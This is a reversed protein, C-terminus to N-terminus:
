ISELKKNNIKYNFDSISKYENQHTIIFMTTKSKIKKLLKLIKIIGAQDVASTIEDLILLEPNMLIERIICIRQKEGNSLNSSSEDIMLDLNINKDEFITDLDFLKIYKVLIKDSLKNNRLKLNDRLSINFVTNDQSVYGIKSRYFNLDYNSIEINNITISGSESEYLRMLLNSITTKGSGSKGYITTIKNKKIKFTLNKIISKNIHSFSVQFFSIDNISNFKIKGFKEENKKNNNLLNYCYDVSVIHQSYEQFQSLLGLIKGFMRGLLVYMILITPIPTKFFKISIFFIVSLTILIIPEILIKSGRNLLVFKLTLTKIQNLIPVIEQYFKSNSNTVKIYKFNSLSKNLINFLSQNEMSLNKAWKRSYKITFLFSLFIITGTILSIILVEISVLMSLLILAFLILISEMINFQVQMASQALNSQVSIANTFESKKHSSLGYKTIFFSYYIEKRLKTMFSLTNLVCLYRYIILFLAKLFIFFCLLTIIIFKDNPIGFSYLTKTVKNFFNNETLELDFFIALAPYILSLGIFELSSAIILLIFLPTKYKVENFILFYNNM